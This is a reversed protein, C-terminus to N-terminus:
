GRDVRSLLDFIIHTRWGDAEHVAEHMQQNDFWWLEGERMLVTEDGCVFQSGMPSRLILHYRDCSRYYEGRDIHPYVRGHPQLRVLLVRMLAQHHRQAFGQLWNLIKPCEVAHMTDLCDMADNQHLTPNRRRDAGRLCISNTERQAPIRDQRSTNALWLHEIADVEAVLPGLNISYDVRRFNRLNGGPESM